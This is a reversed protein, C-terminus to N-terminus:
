KTLLTEAGDGHPLLGALVLKGDQDAPRFTAAGGGAFSLFLEPGQSYDEWFWEGKGGTLGSKSVHVGAGEQADINLREATFTGSKDLDLLAGDPGRWTGIIEARDADRDELFASGCGSLTLLLLATSTAM